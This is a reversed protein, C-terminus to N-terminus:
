EKLLCVVHRAEDGVLKSPVCSSKEWDDKDSDTAVKVRCLFPLLSM